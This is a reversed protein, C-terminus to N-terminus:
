SDWGGGGTSDLDDREGATSERRKSPTVYVAHGCPTGSNNTVLNNMAGGNMGYIVGGYKKFVVTPGNVYVGGGNFAATNGSIAGGKMTFAGGNVYVGGGNFAATNGSIAGGNMTFSYGTLGAVYVGGGGGSASASTNGSITGGNMTFAGTPGAVYVGGGGSAATNGSITGGNMTFAGDVYVGGGNGTATNGSITGGNMTFSYGTAVHVGGGDHNNRLEAGDQMTCSGYSIAILSSSGSVAGGDLVLTGGGPRGLTLDGSGLHTGVEFFSGTFGTPRTIVATVGPAATITLPRSVTITGGGAAPFSKTLGILQPGAITDVASKLEEWSSVPTMANLVAISDKVPLNWNDCATLALFLPLFRRLPKKAGAGSGAQGPPKIGQTNM